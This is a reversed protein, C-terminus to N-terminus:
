LVRREKESEAVVRGLRKLQTSEQKASMIYHLIVKRYSPAQAMFFKWAKKNAKFRKELRSELTKTESEFSYVRSKEEKRHKFVELGAPKM